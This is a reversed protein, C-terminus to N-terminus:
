TVTNWVVDEITLGAWLPGGADVLGFRSQLARVSSCIVESGTLKM